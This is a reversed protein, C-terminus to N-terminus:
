ALPQQRLEADLQARSDDSCDDIGGNARQHEKPDDLENAASASPSAAPPSASPSCTPAPAPLWRVLKARRMKKPLSPSASSARVSSFCWAAAHYPARASRM